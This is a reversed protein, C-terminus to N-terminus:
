ELDLWTKYKSINEIIYEPMENIETKKLKKRETWKDGKKDISHDYMVKKEKMLKKLDKLNLGSQQYDVHHLFNLMKNELDEPGKM